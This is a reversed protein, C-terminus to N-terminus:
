QRSREILGEHLGAKKRLKHELRAMHGADGDHDYGLLHLLGHLALIRLETAVSHGAERAQRKAVDSAIVIDGLYAAEHVRGMQSARSFGPKSRAPFALVDTAYDKGRFSRNLARMRGDSIIAVTVEGRIKAPAATTLWAGLGRTSVSGGDPSAVTVVFSARGSPRPRSVGAPM